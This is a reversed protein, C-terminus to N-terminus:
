QMELFLSVVVLEPDPDPGSRAHMCTCARASIKQTGVPLMQSHMENAFIQTTVSNSNCAHMCAGVGMRDIITASHNALQATHQEVGGGSAHPPPCVIIARKNNAVVHM